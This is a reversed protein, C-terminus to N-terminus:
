TKIKFAAHILEVCEWRVGLLYDENALDFRTAAQIGKSLLWEEAMEYSRDKSYDYPIYIRKNGMRPLTLSIRAGKRDGAPHYKVVVAIQHEPTIAVASLRPNTDAVRRAYGEDTENPRQSSIM